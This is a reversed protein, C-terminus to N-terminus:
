LGRAHAQVATAEALIGARDTSFAAYACIHRQILLSYGEKMGITESNVVMRQYM